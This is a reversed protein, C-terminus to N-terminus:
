RKGRLNGKRIRRKKPKTILQRLGNLHRSTQKASGLEIAHLRLLVNADFRARSVKDGVGIRLTQEQRGRLEIQVIAACLSLM